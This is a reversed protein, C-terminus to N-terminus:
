QNNSRIYFSFKKEFNLFSVVAVGNLLLFFFKLYEGPLQKYSLKRRSTNINNSSKKTSITENSETIEDEDTYTETENTSTNEGHSKRIIMWFKRLNM